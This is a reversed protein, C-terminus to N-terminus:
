RFVSTWRNPDFTYPLVEVYSYESIRALKRDFEKSRSVLLTSIRARTCVGASPPRAGPAAWAAEDGQTM